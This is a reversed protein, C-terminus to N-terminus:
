DDASEQKIAEAINSLRRGETEWHRRWAGVRIKFAEWAEAKTPYAWKKKWDHQVRKGNALVVGHPTHYEVRYREVHLYDGEMNAWFRWYFDPSEELDERWDVNPLLKILYEFM